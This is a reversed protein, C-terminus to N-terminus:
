HYFGHNGTFKGKFWDLSIIASELDRHCYLSPWGLPFSVYVLRHEQAHCLHNQSIKLRWFFTSRKAASLSFTSIGLSIAFFISPNFQWVRHVYSDSSGSTCIAWPDAWLPPKICWGARPGSPNTPNTPTTPTMTRFTQQSCQVLVLTRQPYNLMKMMGSGTIGHENALHIPCGKM